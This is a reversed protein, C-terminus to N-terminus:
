RFGFEVSEGMKVVCKNCVSCHHVRRPKAANCERCFNVEHSAQPPLAQVAPDGLDLIARYKLGPTTGPDTFTCRAYNYLLNGACFLGVATTFLCKFGFPGGEFTPAIHRFYELTCGGIIFAAALLLVPGLLRAFKDAADICRGVGEYFHLASWERFRQWRTPPGSLAYPFSSGRGRGM